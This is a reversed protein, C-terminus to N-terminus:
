SLKTFGLAALATLIANVTTPLDEINTTNNDTVATNAIVAANDADHRVKRVAM